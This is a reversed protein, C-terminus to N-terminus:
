QAVHYNNFLTYVYPKETCRLGSVLVNIAIESFDSKNLSAYNEKLGRIIM